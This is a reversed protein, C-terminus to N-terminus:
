TPEQCPLARLEHQRWALHGWSLPAAQSSDQLPATCCQLFRQLSHQSPGPSTLVPTGTMPSPLSQVRPWGLAPSGPPAMGAMGSSHLPTSPLPKGRRSKQRKEPSWRFSDQPSLKRTHLVSMVCSCGCGGRVSNERTLHSGALPTQEGCLAWPRWCCRAHPPDQQATGDWGGQPKSPNQNFLQHTGLCKQIQEGEPSGQEVLHGPGGTIPAPLVCGM